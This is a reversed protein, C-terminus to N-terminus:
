TTTAVRHLDQLLLSAFIERPTHYGLRKRPRDNLEDAVAQLDTATHISLDTGKPLYERILGNTNENTGRQQPQRPDAFYVAIGTQETIHAHRAMETGRDWTLTKTFWAPLASMQETVAQAVRDATHGHPLHLLTLYGTTREVITGVASNSAASGIILDGEHHGPVLRTEVDEPRDHISVMGPIKGRTEGGGGRRRRTVQGRRLSAKLERTLGGRPYVYLSRYISEHSIQMAENDPHLLRLRGAVQDPSYRKMLLKQVVARLLPNQSLKSPKPRRQRQWALAEAREPQYLGTRPAQNRRLERSITSASRGMRRGIERVSHGAEKLRALEYREVRDLYRGSYVAGAPRYVGGLSHHLKYIYSRSVGSRRAVEMPKHGQSLLDLVLRRRVEALKPRAV